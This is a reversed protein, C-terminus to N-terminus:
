TRTIWSLSPRASQKSAHWCRTPIWGQNILKMAVRRWVPEVQEAVWVSGMGGEGIRQLLKYRGIRDGPKETFTSALDITSAPATATVRRIPQCTAREHTIEILM